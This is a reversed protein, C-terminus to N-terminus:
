IEIAPSLLNPAGRANSVLTNADDTTLAKRRRPKTLTWSEGPEWGPVTSRVDNVKNSM